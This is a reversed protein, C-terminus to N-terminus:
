LHCKQMHIIFTSHSITLIIFYPESKMMNHVNVYCQCKDSWKENLM